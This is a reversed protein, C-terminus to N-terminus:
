RRPPVMDAKLAQQRYVDQAVQCKQLPDQLSLINSGQVLMKSNLEDLQQQLVNNHDYGGNYWVSCDSIYLGLLKLLDYVHNGQIM